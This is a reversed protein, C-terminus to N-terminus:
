FFIDLHPWTYFNRWLPFNKCAIWTAWSKRDQLGLTRQTALLCGNPPEIFHSLSNGQARAHFITIYFWIQAWSLWETASVFITYDFRDHQWQRICTELVRFARVNQAYLMSSWSQIDFFARRCVYPHNPTSLSCDCCVSTRNELQSEYRSESLEWCSISTLVPMEFEIRLEASLQNKVTSTFTNTRHTSCPSISVSLPLSFCSGSASFVCLPRFIETHLTQSARRYNYHEFIRRLTASFKLVPAFKKLVSLHPRTVSPTFKHEIVIFIFCRM